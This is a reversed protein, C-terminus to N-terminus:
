FVFFSSPSVLIMVLVTRMMILTERWLRREVTRFELTPRTKMAVVRTVLVVVVVLVEVEDLKKVALVLVVYFDVVVVAATAAVVVM